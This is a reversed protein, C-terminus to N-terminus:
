HENFDGRQTDSNIVLQLRNGEVSRQINLQETFSIWQSHFLQVVVVVVDNDKAPATDGAGPDGDTGGCDAFVHIDAEYASATGMLACLTLLLFLIRRLM